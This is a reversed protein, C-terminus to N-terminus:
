AILIHFYPPGLDLDQFKRWYEYEKRAVLKEEENTGYGVSQFRESRAKRAQFMQAARNKKGENKVGSNLANALQSIGPMDIKSSKLTRTTLNQPSGPENQDSTLKVEDGGIRKITVNTQTKGDTFNSEFTVGEDYRDAKINPGLHSLTAPGMSGSGAGTESFESHSFQSQSRSALNSASGNVVTPGGGSTNITIKTKEGTQDASMLLNSNNDNSWVAENNGPSLFDSSYQRAISDPVFNSRRTTSLNSMTSSLQDVFDINLNSSSTAESQQQTSSQAYPANEAQVAMTNFPQANKINEEKIIYRNFKNFDVPIGNGLSVFDNEM